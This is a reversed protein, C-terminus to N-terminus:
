GGFCDMINWSRWAGGRRAQRDGLGVERGLTQDSPWAKGQRGAFQALRAFVLKASPSLDPNRLVASPIMAGIFLQFPNFADGIQLPLAPYREARLIPRITTKAQQQGQFDFVSTATVTRDM